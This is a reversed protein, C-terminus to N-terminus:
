GARTPRHRWLRYANTVSWFFYVAFVVWLGLLGFRGKISAGWQDGELFVEGTGTVVWLDVKQGVEFDTQSTDATLCTVTRRPPDCYDVV